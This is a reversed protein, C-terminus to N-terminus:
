DPQTSPKEPYERAVMIKYPGMDMKLVDAIYLEATDESDFGMVDIGREGNGRYAILVKYPKLSQHAESIRRQM